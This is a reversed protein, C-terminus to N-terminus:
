NSLREEINQIKSLFYYGRIDKVSKEALYDVNPKIIMWRSASQYVRDVKRATELYEEDTSLSHHEPLETNDLL